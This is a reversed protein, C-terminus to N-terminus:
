RAPFGQARRLPGPPGAPRIGHCHLDDDSPAASPSRAQRAAGWFNCEAELHKRAAHLRFQTAPDGAFERLLLKELRGVPRLHPAMIRREIQRQKLKRPQVANRHQREIDLARQHAADTRMPRLRAAPDARLCKLVQPVWRLRNTADTRRKRGADPVSGTRVPACRDPRGGNRRLGAPRPGRWPAPAQGGGCAVRIRQHDTDHTRSM